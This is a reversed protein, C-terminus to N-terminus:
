RVCTHPLRPCRQTVTACPPACGHMFLLRVHCKVGGKSCSMRSSGQLPWPQLEQFGWTSSHISLRHRTVHSFWTTWHTKGVYSSTSTSRDAIASQQLVAKPKPPTVWPSLSLSGVHLALLPMLPFCLRALSPRPLMAWPTLLPSVMPPALMLSFHQDGLHRLPVV